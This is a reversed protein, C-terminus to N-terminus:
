KEGKEKEGIGSKKYVVEKCNSCVWKERAKGLFKRGKPVFGEFVMEADCIPCHM